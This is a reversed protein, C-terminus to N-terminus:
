LWGREAAIPRLADVCATHLPGNTALMGRPTETAKKNYELAAGLVDTMRGGAARLIAEPACADWERTRNSMSLYIDAAGEALRAVKLGVSGTPEVRKVGLAEAVRSVTKSRHSRSVMMIAQSSDAKASPRMPATKGGGGSGGRELTAVGDAGWYLVDETPQLVVGLKAEGDIALGIMVVFQGTQDIFDRTGDLPDVVWLRSKERRDSTDPSEEALIGDDPFAAALGEVILTNADRDAATVPDSEGRDKYHVEVGARYHEMIVAGAQRALRKAVELERSFSLPSM